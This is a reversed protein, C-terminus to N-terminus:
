PAHTTPLTLVFTSGKEAVSEVTIDGGHERIIGYAISLGLGTGQGVDKTTFFPEFVRQVDEPAIGVGTDTVQICVRQDALAESAVSVRGGNPMAAIANTILNTLVQQIQSADGNIYLSTQPLQLDIRVDAKDALPKMLDCTQTIVNNLEIPEHPAPAQRAFDLLQRIIKTMREAEAQITAASTQIEEATLKGSKILGARGAVVNLPTGLEHAMGAALTGITGLRDTHRIADRQQKIRHSMDSIAVALRGLEDNSSIAPPQDLQGEGISNVQAILRGLPKGVLQIGGFYIVLGSLTAVGLLSALSTLLSGRNFADQDALPEAVEITGSQNEGLNMPIYSYAKRHGNADTVFVSSTRRSTTQTQVAPQENDDIWRLEPGRLERTSIEVAQQITLTGGEEYVSKIAPTLTDVLDGAHSYRRQEERDHQRRITQWAFLSVIALVGFLFVLILKAALKM